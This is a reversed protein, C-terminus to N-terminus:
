LQINNLLFQALIKDERSYISGEIIEHLLVNREKISLSSLNYKKEFDGIIQYNNGTGAKGLIFMRNSSFIDKIILGLSLLWMLILGLLIFISDKDNFINSFRVNYKIFGSLIYGTALLTFICITITSFRFKKSNIAYFALTGSIACAIYIPLHIM